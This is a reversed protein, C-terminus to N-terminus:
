DSILGHESVRVTKSEGDLQFSQGGCVVTTGRNKVQFEHKGGISVTAVENKYKYFLLWPPETYALYVGSKKATGAVPFENTFTLGKTLQTEPRVGEFVLTIGDFELIVTGPESDAKITYSMMEPPEATLRVFMRYGVVSVFAVLVLLTYKKMAM